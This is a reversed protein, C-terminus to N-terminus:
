FLSCVLDTFRIGPMRRGGRGAEGIPLTIRWPALCRPSPLLLRSVAELFPWINFSFLRLNCRRRGLEATIREHRVISSQSSRCHRPYVCPATDHDLEFFIPLPWDTTAPPFSTPCFKAAEPWIIFTRQMELSDAMREVIVVVVCVM